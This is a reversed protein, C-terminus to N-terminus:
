HRAPLEPDIAAAREGVDDGAGGGAFKGGVLHQALVRGAVTVGRHGADAAHEPKRGIRRDRRARDIRHLHARGDRSVGQELPAALPGQQDYIAAERVRQGDAVLGTGAQEVQVDAQRGQQVLTHHLHASADAHIAAFEFRQVFGAGTGCKVGCHRVANTGASDHQHVRPFVRRVLLAQGLQRTLGPEGLNRCTM